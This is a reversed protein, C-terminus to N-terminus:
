CYLQSGYVGDVERAIEDQLGSTIRRTEAKSYDGKPVYAVDAHDAFLEVAFQTEDPFAYKLVLSQRATPMISPQHVLRALVSRFVTVSESSFAKAGYGNWNDSYGEIENLIRQNKEQLIDISRVGANADNMSPLAFPSELQVNNASIEYRQTPIAGYPSWTMSVVMALALGVQGMARSPSPPNLTKDNLTASYFSISNNM